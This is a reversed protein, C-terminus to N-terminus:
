LTDQLYSCDPIRIVESSAVFKEEKGDSFKILHNFHEGDKQKTGTSVLTDFQEVNGNEFTIEYKGETLTIKKTKM